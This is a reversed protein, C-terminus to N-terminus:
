KVRRNFIRRWIYSRVWSVATYVLTIEIAQTANYQYGWLPLVWFTLCWAIILGSGINLTVEVASTIKNQRM